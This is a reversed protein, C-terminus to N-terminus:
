SSKLATPCMSLGRRRRVRRPGFCSENLEVIGGVFPQAAAEALVVVRRRLLGYLRHTTPKNVRVNQGGDAGAPRPCFM